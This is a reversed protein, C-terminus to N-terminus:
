FSLVELSETPLLLGIWYQADTHMCYPSNRRQRHGRGGNGDEELSAHAVRGGDPGLRREASQDRFGPLKRVLDVREALLIVAQPDLHRV